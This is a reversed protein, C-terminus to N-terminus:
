VEDALYKSSRGEKQLQQTRAYMIECNLLANMGGIQINTWQWAWQISRKATGLVNRISGPKLEAQWRNHVHQAAAYQSYEAKVRSWEIVSPFGHRM